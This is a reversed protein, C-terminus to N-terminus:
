VEADELCRAGLMQKHFFSSADQQLFLKRPEFAVLMGQPARRFFKLPKLQPHALLRAHPYAGPGARRSWRSTARRWRVVRTAAVTAPHRPMTVHVRTGFSSCSTVGRVCCTVPPPSSPPLRGGRPPRPGSSRGPARPWPGWKGGLGAACRSATAAEYIGHNCTQMSCQHM